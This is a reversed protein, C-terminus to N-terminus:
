PILDNERRERHKHECHPRREDLRPTNLIHKTHPHNTSIYPVALTRTGITKPQKHQTKCVQRQDTGPYTRRNHKFRRGKRRQHPQKHIKSEVRREENRKAKTPTQRPRPDLPKKKRVRSQNVHRPYQVEVKRYAEDEVYHFYGVPTKYCEEISHVSQTTPTGMHANTPTPDPAKASDFYDSHYSDSDSEYSITAETKEIAKSVTPTWSYDPNPTPCGQEEYWRYFSEMTLPYPPHITLPHTETPQAPEAKKPTLPSGQSHRKKHEHASEMTLPTTPPHDPLQQTEKIQACLAGTVPPSPPSPKPRKKKHRKRAKRPRPYSRNQPDQKALSKDSSSSLQCQWPQPSIGPHFAGSACSSRTSTGPQYCTTYAYDVDPDRSYEDDSYYEDSYDSNLFYRYPTLTATKLTGTTPTTSM